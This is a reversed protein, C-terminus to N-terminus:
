TFGDNLGIMSHLPIQNQNGNEVSATPTQNAASFVCGAHKVRRIQFGLKKAAISVQFHPFMWAEQTTKRDKTPDKLPRVVQTFVSRNKDFASAIIIYLLWSHKKWNLFLTWMMSFLPTMGLTIMTIYKSLKCWLSWNAWFEKTTSERYHPIKAITKRYAAAWEFKSVFKSGSLLFHWSVRGKSIELSLCFQIFCLIIPILIYISKLEGM